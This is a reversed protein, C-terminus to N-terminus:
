KIANLPPGNLYTTIVDISQGIADHLMAQVQPVPVRQFLNNDMWAPDELHAAFEAPSIKMRGSYIEVTRTTAGPFLQPAVTEQWGVLAADPAFPLWHQPTAAALTEGAGQPLTAFAREDLYTLLVNHVLFREKNDVWEGQEFFYPVLVERFWRVDLMLHISYAAVFVAQAPSLEHSLALQPWLSFMDPYGWEDPAPPINYFHTAKRSIDSSIANVDPAINGLYFAPWEQEVLQRARGCLREDQRIREAMQLHMFPTPM